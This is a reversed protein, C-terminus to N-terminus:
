CVGSWRACRVCAGMGHLEAIRAHMHQLFGFVACHAARRAGAGWSVGDCLALVGGNDYAISGFCDAVPDGMRGGAPSADYLSVAQGAAPAQQHAPPPAAPLPADGQQQWPVDLGACRANRKHILRRRVAVACCLM